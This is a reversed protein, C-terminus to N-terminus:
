APPRPPPAPPLIGKARDIETLHEDIRDIHNVIQEVSLGKDILKVALTSFILKEPKEDKSLQLTFMTNNKANVIAQRIPAPLDDMDKMDEASIRQRDAPALRDYPVPINRGEAKARADVEALTVYVPPPMPKLKRRRRIM